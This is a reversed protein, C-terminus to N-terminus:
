LLQHTDVFLEPEANGREQRVVVTQVACSVSSLPSADYSDIVTSINGMQSPRTKPFVLTLSLLARLTHSCNCLRHM